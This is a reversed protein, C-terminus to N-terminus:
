WKLHTLDCQIVEDKNAPTGPNKASECLLTTGYDNRKDHANSRAWVSVIAREESKAECSGDVDFAHITNQHFYLLPDRESSGSLWMADVNPQGADFRVRRMKDNEKVTELLPSDAKIALSKFQNTCAPVRMNYYIESIAHNHYPYLTDVSQVTMGVEAGVKEGNIEDIRLLGWHGFIEAYAYGGRINNFNKDNRKSEEAYMPFWGAAAWLNPLANASIDYPFASPMKVEDGTVMKAFNKTFTKGLKQVEKNTVKTKFFEDFTTRKFHQAVPSNKTLEGGPNYIWNVDERAGFCQKAKDPNNIVQYINKVMLKMDRRDMICIKQGGQTSDVMAEDSNLCHSNEGNTLAIAYAKLYSLTEDWLMDVYKQDAKTHKVPEGLCKFEANDIDQQDLFDPLSAAMAGNASLLSLAIITKKM